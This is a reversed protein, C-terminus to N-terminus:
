AAPQSNSTAHAWCAADGTRLDASPLWTRGQIERVRRTCVASSELISERGIPLVVVPFAARRMRQKEECASSRKGDDGAVQGHLRQVCADATIRMDSYRRCSRGLTCCWMSSSGEM